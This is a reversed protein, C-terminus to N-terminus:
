IGVEQGQGYDEGGKMIIQNNYLRKLFWELDGEFKGNFDSIQYLQNKRLSQLFKVAIANLYCRFRQGVFVAAGFNENRWRAKPNLQFMLPLSSPKEQEIRALESAAYKADHPVAYPDATTLSNNRMKAEMRCGGGCWTLIKCSCCESPLLSGNRWEQMRGWVIDINENFINGYIVDLHSCPRVDGNSAITLTTVGASCRRGIFSKYHRVEKIACLPYSELIGVSIKEQKGVAHLEALYDRFDQLSLSMESFDSCNGPCGARTSSFHKIGLSKVFLATERLLHKNKQSIVMNVMVSVRAKQLLRIGRVTKEFAGNLQAIEDHSKATPAMLSTLVNAVGLEKFREADKSVLPILNSNIGVTINAAKTKEIARFLVRKNLLPEGGTFVVHFIKANILKDIVQDAVKASMNQSDILSDDERWFNYCHMCRNTCQASIEVQVVLPGSLTKYM